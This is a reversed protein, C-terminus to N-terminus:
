LGAYVGDDSFTAWTVIKQDQGVGPKTYDCVGGPFAAQLKTMQDATPATKYDKADIPKLECKLVDETAPGGAAIRPTTTYPFIKDCQAKDTVKEVTTLLTTGVKVPYCSSVLDAPKNAVVKETPSKTSKDAKIAMIWKDMGALADLYATNMPSGHATFNYQTLDYAVTIDVNTGTTGLYKQLRAQVIASHVRAHVDVNADGRGFPDGDRWDRIAVQPIAALGGTEENVRGTAYAIRLAEPDGVQRQAVIKGSSDQGGIRTNIDIFQDMTIVGNNLAVLGYQIGVNDWPSRAFGTKPDVGFTHVMNDQYTCRVGASKLAPDKNVADVVVQDCNDARQAPYRAGNSVCWGWFMGSVADQQARTWTGQKFANVLLECDFEPQQFTIADAFQREPIIGDLIGPYANAVLQQGMSGGSSGAGLTYIPVGYDKIFQEKVKYATEASVVDDTSTGFSNLSGAAIAYGQTIWADQAGIGTEEINGLTGNLGGFNRGQHFGAKAGPGFSYILKGNWASGGKALFTPVPGTAPDHLIDIVYGSRNTVGKEQRVILAVDKGGISVTDIDTPRKTADFPKWERSKNRYLYSVVVPAFCDSNKPDLHALNSAKLGLADLECVFPTQQPGSFIPKNVATDIVVLNATEGGARAQLAVNKGEVFGVVLGIYQGPNNPDAVFLKTIDRNDWTVTPPAIAGKIAILASANSVMNPRSSLVEFSLAAWANSAILAGAIATASAVLRSVNRQM